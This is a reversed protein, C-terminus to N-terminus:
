VFNINVPKRVVTEQQNDVPITKYFSPWGSGSDYKTDSSYSVVNFFTLDPNKKRFEHM